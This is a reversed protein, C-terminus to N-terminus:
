PESRRTDGADRRAAAAVAAGIQRKATRSSERAIQALTIHELIDKLTPRLLEGWQRHIFCPNRSDCRSPWFACREFLGPGEIAEIIERMTIAGAARELSYGRVAGRHSRVVHARALKQFIKALFREPLSGAAAIEHLLLITGAPKVALVRLGELGYESERSLRM